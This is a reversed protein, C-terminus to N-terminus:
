ILQNMKLMPLMVALLIFGVMITMWGLMIPEILAVSKELTRKVETESIDAVKELMEELKSSEEGVRIMQIVSSPFVTTQRLAQSLDMGKQTIDISIQHFKDEFIRNGLVKKVIDLSQKLEVGSALLTGLTQTFRYVLIKEIITKIIPIKLLMWDRFFEGRKTKLGSRLAIISIVICIILPWANQIVFNSLSLVITTPLPLDVDFQHFIPVIKPIIFSVMFVVICLALVTMIIPYIMAHQIKAVLEENTERSKVLQNLALDLKGSAEGAKVMAIYMKSFLTPYSDLAAALSSGEIIQSKVESLVQQFKPNESEKMLIDFARDYPIGTSILISLQRTFNTIINAPVDAKNQIKNTKQRTLQSKKSNTISLLHLGKSRLKSTAQKISPSDIKGKKNKGTKDIARYNFLAM